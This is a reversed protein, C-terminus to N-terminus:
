GLYGLGKKKGHRSSVAEIVFFPDLIGKGGNLGENNSPENDMKKMIQHAKPGYLDWKPMIAAELFPNSQTNTRNPTKCTKSVFRQLPAPTSKLPTGGEMKTKEKGVEGARDPLSLDREKAVFSPIQWALVHPQHPSNAPTHDPSVLRGRTELHDRWVKSRTTLLDSMKESDLMHYFQATLKAEDGEKGVTALSLFKPVWLIKGLCHQNLASPRHPDSKTKNICLVVLIQLVKLRDTPCCAHFTPTGNEEKLSTPIQLFKLGVAPEKAPATETQLVPTLIRLIKMGEKNHDTMPVPPLSAPICLIKM